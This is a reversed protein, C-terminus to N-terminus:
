SGGLRFVTTQRFTEGPELLISPFHPHHPADPWLQPELAIGRDGGAYVQLGPADSIVEVFRGSAGTLRALLRPTESPDFCFNHDLAPDPSRPTRHDFRTGAVPAIKGTPITDADTPLYRDTLVELDHGRRSGTGDLSWIGHHALNVFTPADTTASLTLRLDAGEVRYAAWLVREGPFGGEGDGLVLSLAVRDDGADEVTWLRAHAGTRGSHLCHRGNQNAEFRCTRGGIVASAGAIRNVVPGVVPGAYALAGLYGSLDASGAMLNPSSDLSLAHLRAGHTLITARLRPGAIGVARVTRGDPLVGFPTM